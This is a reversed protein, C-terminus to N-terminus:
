AVGGKPTIELELLAAGNGESDVDPASVRKLTGSYVIPRGWANGDADLPQKTVVAVGKGARSALWHYAEHAAEDYLRSVTVNGTTQAGGLSIQHALGGPRYTLEESDVEGGSLKDFVGLDRGDVSVRVSYTDERKM